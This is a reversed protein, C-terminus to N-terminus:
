TRKSLDKIFHGEQCYFCKKDNMKGRFNEKEKYGIKKNSNGIKPNFKSKVILNERNVYEKRKSKLELEKNNLANIIIEIILTEREYQIASKVDKCKYVISNLLVM